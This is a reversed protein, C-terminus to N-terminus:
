CFMQSRVSSVLDPAAEGHRRQFYAQATDLSSFVYSELLQEQCWEDYPAHLYAPTVGRNSVYVLHRGEEQVEVYVGPMNNAHHERYFVRCRGGFFADPRSKQKEQQSSRLFGFM